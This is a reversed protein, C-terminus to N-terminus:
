RNLYAHSPADISPPPLHAPAAVALRRGDPLTLAVRSTEPPLAQHQRLYDGVAQRLNSAYQARTTASLARGHGSLFEALLQELDLGALDTALAGPAHPLIRRVAALRASATHASGAGTKVSWALHAILDRGSIRAGRADTDPDIVPEPWLWGTAAQRATLNLAYGRAARPALRPWREDPIWLRVGSATLASVTGHVRRIGDEYCGVEAGVRLLNAKM